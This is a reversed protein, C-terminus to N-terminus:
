HATFRSVSKNYKRQIRERWERMEDSEVSNPDKPAAAYTYKWASLCGALADVIDDHELCGRDSSLRSVQTQFEPNAAITTPIVIRRMSLIPEITDIIRREKHGQASTVPITTM